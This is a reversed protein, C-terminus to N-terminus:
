DSESGLGGPSACPRCAAAGFHAEIVPLAEPDHAIFWERLLAGADLGLLRALVPVKALPVRTKGSKFMSIVNSHQYGLADAIKTNAVGSADAADRLRQAFEARADRSNILRKNM